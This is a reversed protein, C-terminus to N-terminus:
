SMDVIGCSLQIVVLKMAFTKCFFRLGNNPLYDSINNNINFFKNIAREQIDNDQGLSTKLGLTSELFSTLDTDADFADM